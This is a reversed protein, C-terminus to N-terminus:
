GIMKQVALAIEPFELPSVTQGPRVTQREEYGTPSPTRFVTVTLNEVNALWVEPIGFRAYLPVKVERDYELSLDSVEVILCVDTPGPIQNEYFGARPKLLAVDPEPENYIDLRIPRQTIVMAREPPLDRHFCAVIQNVGAMHRSGIPPLQIIEGEILEVREDERLIGSRAMIYYEDVTFRRNLISDPMIAVEREM